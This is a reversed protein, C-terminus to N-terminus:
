PSCGSVAQDDGNFEAFGYDEYLDTETVTVQNVPDYFVTVGTNADYRLIVSPGLRQHLMAVTSSPIAPNDQSCAGSGSGGGGLLTPPPSSTVLAVPPTDHPTLPSAAVGGLVLFVVLLTGARRGLSWRAGVLPGTRTPASRGSPMRRDSHPSSTPRPPWLSTLNGVLLAVLPGVAPMGFPLLVALVAVLLAYWTRRAPARPGTRPEALLFLGLFIVSPDVAELLLIRPADFGGAALHVATTATAYVAFFVALPRWAGSTRAALIVGLGIMLLEEAQTVSAWWAPALGFIVAGLIMGSAAPNLLPRGKRRLCHRLAVAAGTVAAAPGLAVTPPLLLALFLGTAIAPEPIRWADFRVSQFGLDVTVAVLPLLVLSAWGIGGLEYASVAGLVGLFIVLLRVEPLAARLRAYRPPVTPPPPPPAAPDTM